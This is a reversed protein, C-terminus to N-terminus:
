ELEEETVPEVEWPRCYSHIGKFFLYSNKGYSSIVLRRPMDERKGIYKVVLGPKLRYRQVHEDSRRDLEDAIEAGLVRFTKGEVEIGLDRALPIQKDTPERIM